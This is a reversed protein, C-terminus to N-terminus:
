GELRDSSLVFERQRDDIPGCVDTSSVGGPRRAAPLALEYLGALYTPLRKLSHYEEVMSRACRGMERRRSSSTVLEAVMATFGDLDGPEILFGTRGDRVIDPVGGVNSAVVPLGSAMAELLVNPTGEHDSTLVCVAAEHYVTRTDQVNGRFEVLGPFLGLRRAHQELESRLDENPCGGGV